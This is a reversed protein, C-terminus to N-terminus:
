ALFGIIPDADGRSATGGGDDDSGMSTANLRACRFDSPGDGALIEREGQEFSGSCLPISHEVDGAGTEVLRLAVSEDALRPLSQRNVAFIGLGRYYKEAALIRNKSTADLSHELFM